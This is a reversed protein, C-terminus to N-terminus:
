RREQSARGGKGIRLVKGIAPLIDEADHVAMVIQTGNRALRELVTLVHERVDGDLGTCPEDLLLLEPDNVMARAILALRMQGYSVQRPGRDRLEAIGFFKLSKAAAARDARTPPENLGVSAYRGSIVIEEISKEQAYSAQLEPSVWGVRHKWKEIRTGFPVGQREIIGGLAPHLDGYIMSLLTSKGSGNAGLVAWHEGRALTWNLNRIVLRYDRYIDANAITVLPGPARPVPRPDSSSRVRPVGSAPRPESPSGATLLPAAISRLRSEKQGSGRTGLGAGLAGQEVIRGAIIRAVHTVNGPLEKQRHSTIVWDHGGRPQELARRLKEKARLDLGNFVEDLLLVRAKSAFARAVLALRRQGYSLTLIHRQRLGWLSFRRLLRDVKERQSRTPKTLPIDEDFLGTTVVQTVTLNWGYRVYKDQREPGIYAIWEKSSGQMPEGDAAGDLFYHRQERGTPTPWLDGRLMRLLMSKGSGNPGVLAWREGQRLTFSVDDLM